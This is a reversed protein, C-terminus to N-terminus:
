RERASNGHEKQQVPDYPDRAWPRYKVRSRDRFAARQLVYLKKHTNEEIVVRRPLPQMIDLMDTLHLLDRPALLTCEILVQYDKVIQRILGGYSGIEIFQIAGPAWCDHAHICVTVPKKSRTYKNFTKVSLAITGKHMPCGCARCGTVRELEVPKATDECDRVRGDGHPTVILGGSRMLAVFEPPMVQVLKM